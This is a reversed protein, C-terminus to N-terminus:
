ELKKKERDKWHCMAFIITKLRYFNKQAVIRSLYSLLIDKASFKFFERLIFDINTLNVM